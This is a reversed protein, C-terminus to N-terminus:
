AFLTLPFRMRVRASGGELLYGPDVCLDAVFQGPNGEIESISISANKLPRRADEGSGESDVRVFRSLWNSLHRELDSPGKCRLEGKGRNRAM